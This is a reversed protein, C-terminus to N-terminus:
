NKKGNLEQDVIKGDYYIKMEDAIIPKM